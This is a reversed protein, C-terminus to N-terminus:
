HSHVIIELQRRIEQLISKTVTNDLRVLGFFYVFHEVADQM